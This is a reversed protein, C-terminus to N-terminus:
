EQVRVSWTVSIATPTGTGSEQVQVAIADGAAIAVSNTTDSCSASAESLLCTLATSANNLRLTVTYAQTGGGNDPGNNARVRFQSLTGAIPSPLAVKNETGNSEGVGVYTAANNGTAVNFYSSGLM